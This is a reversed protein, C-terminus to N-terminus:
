KYKYVKFTYVLRIYYNSIALTIITITFPNLLNYHAYLTNYYTCLYKVTRRLYLRFYHAKEDRAHAYM